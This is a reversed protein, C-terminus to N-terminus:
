KKRLMLAGVVAIAIIIAVVGIALYILMDSNSITAETGSTPAPSSSSALAVIASTEAYSSYYSDSGSFTAFIKYIGETTPKWSLAFQGAYDSTTTGLDTYGGNSDLATISVTVGNPTPPDNLLTANQMYLYDMWESMDEDAVAPVGNPFLVQSAYEQSVPSMDMVSGQILVGTGTSVTTLPATVTTKTPGKGLCWINGDFDGTAIVYGDAASSVRLGGNLTFITDGTAADICTVVSHRSIPNIKYSSAYGAYVYLKDGIGVINQVTPVANNPYETSPIAKSRWVEHGDALSYARVTGDPLMAYFNDYDSTEALYVTWATAWTSDSFSTSTWRLAGTKISYCKFAIDTPSFIIFDDTPWLCIQQNSQAPYNLTLNWLSAGTEASYGGYENPARRVLLTSADNSMGYVFANQTASSAYQGPIKPLQQIMPVPLPVTWELGVPWNNSTVPSLSGPPITILGTMNWRSLKQNPAVGTIVYGIPTGDVLYYGAIGSANVISRMVSGTFTDYYNWTSGNTQFLYPSFYSGYSSELVVNGTPSAGAQQYATGPIHLGYSFGGTATYLVKGTALDICEFKGANPISIYLKGQMVVSSISSGDAGYSLSGYDGGMLGGARLPQKWFIHGTTPGSGYPQWLRCSAGLVTAGLSSSGLWDGSIQSWERNNCSIPYSWYANANPLPSWPYGNLLGALVLDTQVTFYASKSTCGTMLITGTIDTLNQDPMTFSVSWNGAINPKYFFYIAGLAQTQGAAYAHTGDTPMFTDKTGDPKVFTVTVGRYGDYYTLYARNTPLPYIFLNVTAEQGVGILRPAVDIYGTTKEPQPVGVQALTPHAFAIIMSVALILILSLSSITKKNLKNQM